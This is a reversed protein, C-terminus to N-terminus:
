RTTSASTLQAVENRFAHKTHQYAKAWVSRPQVEDRIEVVDDCAAAVTPWQRIGVGALIAAGLASGEQSKLRIVARDTVAAVIEAWLDSQAGGGSLVISNATSNAATMLSTIMDLNLAVGELVARALHALTHNITLGIFAATVDASAFPCREGNLYPLFLLDDSGPPVTSALQDIEAFSMNPAFTERFWTLSDAAALMCGYTCYENSIASCMRQLMGSEDTPIQQGVHAFVVGSTGLTMSQLGKRVLGMGVAGTMQDGSGIIIPTSTPLGTLEAAHDSLTGTIDTSNILTPLQDVAIGVADCLTDDWKRSELNLLLTGSADGFDTKCEGTLRYAIYDKPLLVRHLNDFKAPYRECLWLIKPATFGTLPANGTREIISQRSGIRETITNCQHLTRQDNWLIAPNLINPQYSTSGKGLFVAGHMQGSLGIADIARSEETETCIQMIVAATAQWWWEPNQESWGHRPRNIQHPSSATALLTGDYEILVAKTSSTGIDIGLLAM